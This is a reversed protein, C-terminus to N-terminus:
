DILAAAAVSMKKTSHRIECFHRICTAATLRRGPAFGQNNHIPSNKRVWWVVLRCDNEVSSTSMEATFPLYATQM